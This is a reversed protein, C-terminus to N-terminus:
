EIITRVEIDDPAEFRYLVGAEGEITEGHKITKGSELLYNHIQRFLKDNIGSRHENYIILEKHNMATFGTTYAFSENRREKHGHVITPEFGGRKQLQRTLAECDNQGCRTVPYYKALASEMTERDLTEGGVDHELVVILDQYLASLRSLSCASLANQFVLEDHEPGYPPLSSDRPDGSFSTILSTDHFAGAHAKQFEDNALLHPPLSLSATPVGSSGRKSRQRRSKKGM